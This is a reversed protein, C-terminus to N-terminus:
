RYQAKVWGQLLGRQQDRVARYSYATAFSKKPSVNLGAFLGIVEDCNFDDIHSRREKDLLKLALLSLLASTAPIMGSGPYGAETVLRDFGLRALLPLFLLVGAVRSRIARGPELNLERCDAVDPTEPGPRARGASPASPGGAATRSFFPTAVGRRCDARLRSAMSRLTSPKYGFREAVRELPEDDVFIARLAEYQRQFTQQPELFFRRSSAGTWSAHERVNIIKRGSVM